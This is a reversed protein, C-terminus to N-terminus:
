LGAKVLSHLQELIDQRAINCEDDELNMLEAHLTNILHLFKKTQRELLAEAAEYVYPNLDVSGNPQAKLKFGNNLFLQKIEEKPLNAYPNEFEVGHLKSLLDRNTENAHFIVACDQHPYEKGDVTFSDFDEFDPGYKIRVPFDRLAYAKELTIIKNTHRPYYVRDGAKFTVM